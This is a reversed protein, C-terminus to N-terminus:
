QDHNTNQHKRIIDCADLIKRREGATLAAIDLTTNGSRGPSPNHFREALITEIIDLATNITTDMMRHHKTEGAGTTWLIMCVFNAGAFPALKEPCISM